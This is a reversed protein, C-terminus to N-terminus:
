EKAYPKKEDIEKWNFSFQVEEYGLPYDKRLPHGSWDAPMLIRRLDPHGTFTIGFMDYLEREHWEANRHVVTATPLVPEDGAVRAKLRLYAGYRMSYLQYLVAFRPEDPWDDIATLTSLFNFDLEPTEKLFRLADVIRNKDVHATTQDRFVVVDQIAEGFKGRLAEVAKQMHDM